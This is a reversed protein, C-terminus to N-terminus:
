GEEAASGDSGGSLTGDTSKTDTKPDAADEGGEPLSGICVGEGFDYYGYDLYDLAKPTLSRGRANISIFGIKMLYPEYVKTLIKVDLYVRAALTEASLNGHDERRIVRLIELEKEELGIADVGREKFYTEVMEATVTATGAIVCKTHIGMVIAKIDRLSSRFRNVCSAIIEDSAVLGMALFKNRVIRCLEDRTYDKMMFTLNNCRDKITNLVADYDTTAGIFTFDPIPVTKTIGDTMYVYARKQLLTLLRSQLKPTLAHIEDFAMVIPRQKKIVNLFFSHFNEESKANNAFTTCDIFELEVGLEKAILEILTSKGLGRNGFLMINDLHRKGLIAAARIEEKIRKVIHEQGIYDDLTQPEIAQEIPLPETPADTPTADADASLPEAPSASPPDALTPVDHLGSSAPEVSASGSSVPEVPTPEVPMRTPKPLEVAIDKPRLAPSPRASDDSCSAAIPDDSAHVVPKEAKPKESTLAPSRRGACIDGFSVGKGGWGFFEAVREDCYGHTRMVEIVGDISEYLNRCKARELFSTSSRYLEKCHESILALNGIAEDVGTPSAVRALNRANVFLTRIESLTRM